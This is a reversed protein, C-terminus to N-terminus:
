RSFSNLCNMASNVGDRVWIEIGGVLEELLLNLEVQESPGFSQLVYDAAQVSTPPRGIGIRLRAFQDTGLHQIISQLGKQGGSSGRERMRIQGFKLDLDDVIVLVNGLPIKYFDILKRVFQGSLNMFTQPLGLLVKKDEVAWETVLGNHQNRPQMLGFRRIVCKIALFGVNHRTDEYRSGPNGLGVILKM